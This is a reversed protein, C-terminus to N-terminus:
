SWARQSRSTSSRRARVELEVLPTARDAAGVHRELVLAGRAVM